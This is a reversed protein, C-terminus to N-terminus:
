FFFERGKGLSVSLDDCLFHEQWWICMPERRDYRGLIGDSLHCSRFGGRRGNRWPRMNHFTAYTVDPAVELVATDVISFLFRRSSFTNRRLLRRGRDIIIVM